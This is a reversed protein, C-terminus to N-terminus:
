QIGKAARLELFATEEPSGPLYEYRGTGVMPGRDTGPIERPIKGPVSPVGLPEPVPERDTGSHNGATGAHDATSRVARTIPERDTGARNPPTLSAGGASLKGADTLEWPDRPGHHRVLADRRLAQLEDLVTEKRIGLDKALANASMPEDALLRMIRSRAPLPADGLSYRAGDFALRERVLIGARGRGDLIRRGDDLAPESTPEHPNGGAITARLTLILDVQAGIQVSGRYQDGAKRTHHSLVLAVDRARAALVYPRLLNRVQVADSEDLEGGWLEALTDIVAVRATTYDLHQAFESASPPETFIWLRSADAGYRQFRQVVDPLGEDIGYWLANDPALSGDLFDVGSTLAAIAQALLTSKGLKERAALLTVRGPYALRPIIAVPPELLEPRALLDRLLTPLRAASETRLEPDSTARSQQDEGAEMVVAANATPVYRPTAQLLAKLASASGGGQLWDFADGGEPLNPLELIKVPLGGRAFVAASREAHERGVDDNDPLVVVGAAGRLFDSADQPPTGAAGTGFTTAAAGITHLADAAKEGEAYFIATPGSAITARLEAWRYPVRRVGNLGNIWGGHGDVRQWSFGKPKYRLKRYLPTGQEDCYQHYTEVIRKAPLRPERPTLKAMWTVLADASCGAHCHLLTKGDRGVDVSLSARKDDHIPCRATWGDGSKRVGKLHALVQPTELRM